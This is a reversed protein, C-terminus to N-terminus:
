GAQRTLRFAARFSKKVFKLFPIGAEHVVGEVLRVLGYEFAYVAEGAGIAAFGGTGDEVVPVNFAEGFGQVQPRRLENLSVQAHVFVAIVHELTGWTWEQGSVVGAIHVLVTGRGAAFVGM